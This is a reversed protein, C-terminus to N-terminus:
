PHSSDLVSSVEDFLKNSLADYFFKYTVQATIQHTDSVSKPIVGGDMMRGTYSSMSLEFLTKFAKEKTSKLGSLSIFDCLETDSLIPACATQIASENRFSPLFPEYFSIVNKGRAISETLVNGTISAVCEANDILAFPTLNGHDLLVVNKINSIRKYFGKPRWRRDAKKNFTSPHERVFLTVGRPLSRSLKRIVNLQDAYIRALPVTNMEPQFHLFYIVFRKKAIVEQNFSVKCRDYELKIFLKDLFFWLFSIVSRPSKFNKAFQKLSTAGRKEYYPIADKYDSAAIGLFENIDDKTANELCDHSIREPKRISKCLYRVWPLPSSILLFVEVGCLEMTNMFLYAELSHPMYSCFIKNPKYELYFGIAAEVYDGCDIQIQYAPKCRRNFRYALLSVMHDSLIEQKIREIDLETVAAETNSYKLKESINHFTIRSPSSLFKEDFLHADHNEYLVSFDYNESLQKLLQNSINSGFYLYNM